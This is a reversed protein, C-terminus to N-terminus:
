RQRLRSPRYSPTTMRRSNKPFTRSAQSPGEAVIQGPHTTLKANIEGFYFLAELTFSLPILKPSRDSHGPDIPQCLKFRALKLYGSQFLGNRRMPSFDL